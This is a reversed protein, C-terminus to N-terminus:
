LPYWKLYKGKLAAKAAKKTDENHNSDIVKELFLKTLSSAWGASAAATWFQLEKNDPLSTLKLTCKIFEDTPITRHMALSQLGGNALEIQSTELWKILSSPTQIKSNTTELTTIAHGIAIYLITSDFDNESLELLFKISDSYGSEGLAMIIQYQTEWTRKDELEKKLAEFIAKGAEKSAVKRLKKAASRRKTSTKSELEVILQSVDSGEAM